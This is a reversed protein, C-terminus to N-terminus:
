VYPREPSRDRSEPLGITGTIKFPDYDVLLFKVISNAVTRFIFDHAINEILKACTDILQAARRAQIGLTARFTEGLELLKRSGQGRPIRLRSPGGCDFVNVGGCLSRGSIAATDTFSQAIGACDGM